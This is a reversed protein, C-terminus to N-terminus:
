DAAFEEVTIPHAAPTERPTPGFRLVAAGYRLTEDSVSESYRITDDLEGCAGTTTFRQVDFQWGFGQCYRAKWFGPPVRFVRRDEWAPILITRSDSHEPGILRLAIAKGSDNMVKLVGRGQESDAADVPMAETRMAAGPHESSDRPQAWAMNLLGAAVAIALAALGAYPLISGHARGAPSPRRVV